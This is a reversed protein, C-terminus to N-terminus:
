DNDKRKRNVWLDYDTNTVRWWEHHLKITM